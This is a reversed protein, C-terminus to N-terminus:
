LCGKVRMNWKAVAANQVQAPSVGGNRYIRGSTAGCDECRVFYATDEKRVKADGGCLPCSKIKEM